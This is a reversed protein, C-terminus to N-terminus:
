NLGSLNEPKNKLEAFAPRDENILHDKLIDNKLFFILFWEKIGKTVVM